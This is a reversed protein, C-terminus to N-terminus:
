IISEVVLKADNNCDIVTNRLNLNNKAEVWILYQGTQLRYEM